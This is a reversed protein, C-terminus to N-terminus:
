QKKNMIIKAAEYIDEAIFDPKIDSEKLRDLHKKGNGTIVNIKKCGANKGTGIEWSNNRILWTKKIKIKAMNAM